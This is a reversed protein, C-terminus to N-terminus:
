THFVSTASNRVCQKRSRWFAAMQQMMYYQKQKQENMEMAVKLNHHHQEKAVTEQVSRMVELAQMVSCLMQLTQQQTLLLNPGAPQRYGVKKKSPSQEDKKDM